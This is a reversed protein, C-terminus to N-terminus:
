KREGELVKLRDSVDKLTLGKEGPNVLLGYALFIFGVLMFCVAIRRQIMEIPLHVGEEM